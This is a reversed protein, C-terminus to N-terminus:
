DDLSGHWALADLFEEDATLMFFPGDFHMDHYCAWNIMELLSNPLKIGAIRTDILMDFLDIESINRISFRNTRTDEEAIQEGTLKFTTRIEM